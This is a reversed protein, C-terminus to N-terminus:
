PLERRHVATGSALYRGAAEVFDDDAVVAAARAADAAEVTWETERIAFTVEVMRDVAARVDADVVLVRLVTLPRTVAARTIFCEAGLEALREASVGEARARQRIWLTRRHDSVAAALDAIAALQDRRVDQATAAVAAAAAARQQARGAVIAGLLTGAVAIVATAIAIDM